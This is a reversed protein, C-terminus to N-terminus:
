SRQPRSRGCQEGLVEMPIAAKVLRANFKTNKGGEPLDHCTSAESTENIEHDSKRRRCKQKSWQNRQTMPRIPKISKAPKKCKIPMTRKLRKSQLSVDKASITENIQHAGNTESVDRGHQTETNM